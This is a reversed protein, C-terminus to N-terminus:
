KDVPAVLVPLPFSEIFNRLQNVNKGLDVEIWNEFVGHSNLVAREDSFCDDDFWLFPKTFDIAETKAVNWRTPKIKRMLAVTEEDFLHGVHEIPTESDGQCHTTLWYTTDPYKELVRFLFKKAHLAPYKENALLVGDIDLYINPVVKIKKLVERPNMGNVPGVVGNAELRDVIRSAVSYGTDLRRQVFSVSAKQSQIVLSVAKDYLESEYHRQAKYFEPDAKEKGAIFCSSLCFDFNQIKEEPDLGNAKKIPHFLDIDLRFGEKQGFYGLIYAHTCATLMREKDQHEGIYIHFNRSSVERAIKLVDEPTILVLDAGSNSPTLLTALYEIDETKRTNVNFNM